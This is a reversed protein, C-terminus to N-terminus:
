APLATRRRIAAGALGLGLILSMWTAPEPVAATGIQVDDIATNDIYGRDVIDQVYLIPTSSVFGIFASTNTGQTLTFSQILGSAGYLSIVPAAYDNTLFTFAFATFSAGSHLSIRFNEDGDASLVATPNPAALLGSNASVVFLDHQSNGGPQNVFDIGNRVAITATSKVGQSLGTFDELNTVTAAADFAAQTTYLTVAAQAAGSMALAAAAAAAMTSFIKMRRGM